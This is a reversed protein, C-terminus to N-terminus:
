SPIAQAKSVEFDSQWHCVDELLAVGGSREWVTGGTPVLYGFM